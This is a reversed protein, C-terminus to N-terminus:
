VMVRSVLRYLTSFGRSLLCREPILILYDCAGVLTDLLLVSLSSLVVIYIPCYVRPCVCVGYFM